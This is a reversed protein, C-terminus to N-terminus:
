FNEFVFSENPLLQYALIDKSNDAVSTAKSKKVKKMTTKSTGLKALESCSCNSNKSSSTHSSSEANPFSSSIGSFPIDCDSANEATPSILDQESFGYFEDSYEFAQNHKYHHLLESEMLANGLRICESITNGVGSQLLHDVLTKGSCSNACHKGRWTLPVESRLKKALPVHIDVQIEELRDLIAQASPRFSPDPHWAHEILEQIRMDITPDFRPRNGDLIWEYIQFHSETHPHKSKNPHLIEWFTMALSFIDASSDYSARGGKAKLLEPAMYDVTGRISIMPMNQPVQTPSQLLTFNDRTDSSVSGTPLLFTNENNSSRPLARSEGFDTLKVVGNSSLLFNEPKIDRHLFPPSFSHLYGIARTADIMYSLQVNINWEISGREITDPLFETLTGQCLESVLCLTPPCVCLGYFATINPHSLTACLAAENSYNAITDFTLLNPTYVKVAVQLKSQFIGKFVTSTTGDAIRHLLKLYAFDILYSRHMEILLHIGESSIRESANNPRKIIKKMLCANQGFGRWYMTDARLIRYIMIPYLSSWFAIFSTLYAATTVKKNLLLETYFFQFSLYIMSFVCYQRIVKKNARDPPRIAVIAYFLIFISRACYFVITKTRVGVNLKELTLIVPLLYLIFVAAIASARLLAPRSVSKQLMFLMVLFSIYNRGTTFVYGDRNTLISDFTNLSLIVIFYIMYAISIISIEWLLWEFAPLVSKKAAIIDGHYACAKKKRVYILLGISFVSLLVYGGFIEWQIIKMKQEIDRFESITILNGIYNIRRTSNM